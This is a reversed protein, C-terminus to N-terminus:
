GVGMASQLIQIRTTAVQTLAEYELGNEALQANQQDIDVGNGDARVTQTTATTPSFSVADVPTGSDLAARLADHFNVDSPKYGPTNVNAINNALLEHRMAAGQLAVGLANQTTDFLSV